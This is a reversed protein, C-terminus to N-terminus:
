SFSRPHAHPKKVVTLGKKTTFNIAHPHDIHFRVRPVIEGKSWDIVQASFVTGSEVMRYPFGPRIKFREQQDPDDTLKRIGIIVMQDKIRIFRLVAAGILDVEQKPTRDVWMDKKVPPAHRLHFRTGILREAPASAVEKERRIM